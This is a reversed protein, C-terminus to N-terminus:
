SEGGEALYLLGVAAKARDVRIRLAQLRVDLEVLRAQVLATFDGTGAQYAALAAEANDHATHALTDRYLREREGLRQWDALARDLEARLRRLTDQRELAAAEAEKRSAALRRDQRDGRFVPLDVTLMVAAMDSRSTGDPNDGFRMRYEAGVSWGPKYREQAIRVGQDAAAIRASLVALEPHGELTARLDPASPPTLSPLESPLDAQAHTGIWQALAARAREQANRIRTLRDNIRARELEAQLVDQQDARGAGYHARTIEVLDDFWGRSDTLIREAGLQYYLELWAERVSKRTRAAALRAAARQAEARWLTRRREFRRVRGPPFAQQVGIRWQTTPERTFDFDDTPVNYIGTRLKPDHLEGDAVAAEALAEARARRAAVGPDAELAIREAEDLALGTGQTAVVAYPVLLALCAALGRLWRSIM